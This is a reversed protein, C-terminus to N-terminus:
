ISVLLKMLKPLILQFKKKQYNMIILSMKKIKAHESVIKIFRRIVLEHCKPDVSREFKHSAESQIDYKISKGIISEPVFFACEVMVSTTEKNCSTKKSGVVGALNIIEDNLFFVPNKEKLNIKKGLLTEFECNLDLEQFALKGEIKSADYCHTPQGIEYSIYNSVDTFFNNKNLGLESFYSDLCGNYAAPIEEVEIKLFSINPCIDKSLNTFDIKLTDLKENCIDQKFNVTYFAALDRLLGNISLCDGRNPTFEMDFINGQIEHEHGLQFLKESIMEVSPKEQIHSVLHNYAIKM